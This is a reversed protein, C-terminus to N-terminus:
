LMKSKSKIVNDGFVPNGASTLHHANGSIDKILDAFILKTNVSLRRLHEGVV